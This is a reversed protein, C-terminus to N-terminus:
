NSLEIQEELVGVRARTQTSDAALDSIARNMIKMEKKIESVDQKIEAQGEELRAQREELKTQREELRIQGEELRAQGAKLDSVDRELRQVGEASKTVINFLQKFQNDTM